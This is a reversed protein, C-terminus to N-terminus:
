NKLYISQASYLLDSMGIVSVVSTWKLLGILQNGTPPIIIRIAWPLTIRSFVQTPQMGLAKAADTQGGPVANIGSRIIEAMSAAENLGMALIAASLPTIYDNANISGFTPGFPLRITITPYLAAIN